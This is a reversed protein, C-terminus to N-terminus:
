TLYKNYQSIIKEISFVDFVDKQLRNGLEGILSKNAYVKRLVAELDPEPNEKNIILANTENILYDDFDGVDNCVVVPKKCLGAEKILNNSAESSSLHVVLDAASLFTLVDNRFGMLLIKDQLNNERIYKELNNKEPGDSM